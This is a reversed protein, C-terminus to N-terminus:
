ERHKKRMRELERQKDVDDRIYVYTGYFTFIIFPVGLILFLIGLLTELM